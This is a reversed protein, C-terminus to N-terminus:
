NRDYLGMGTFIREYERLKEERVKYDPIYKEVLAYFDENHNKYVIHSLEHVTVYDICDEDTMLLMYSYNIRNGGKGGCSGWRTKAGTIKPPPPQPLKMVAAWLSTKRAMYSKGTSKFYFALADRKEEESLGAPIIFKDTDAGIKKDETECLPLKRGRCYVCDIASREPREARKKERWGKPSEVVEAIKARSMGRPARVVISGDPKLQLSVSKRDAYIVTYNM